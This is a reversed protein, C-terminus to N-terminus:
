ERCHWFKRRKAHWRDPSFDNRKCNEESNNNWLIIKTCLLCPNHFASSMSLKKRYNDYYTKFWLLGAKSFGYLTPLRLSFVWATLQAHLSIQHIRSTSLSNKISYLTTHRRSPFHPLKQSSLPYLATPAIIFKSGNLRSHALSTPQRQLSSHGDQVKCVCVTNRCKKYPQLFSFRVFPSRSSGVQARPHLSKERYTGQVQRKTCSCLLRPRGKTAFCDEMSSHHRKQLRSLKDFSNFAM